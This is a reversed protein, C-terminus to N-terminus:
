REFGIYDIKRQKVFNYLLLQQYLAHLQPVGVEIVRWENLVGMTNSQEKM